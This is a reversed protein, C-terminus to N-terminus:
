GSYSQVRGPVMVELGDYMRWPKWDAMPFGFRTMRRVVGEVSIGIAQKLDDDIEGLM